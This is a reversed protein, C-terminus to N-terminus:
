ALRAPPPRQYLEPNHSATFSPADHIVVIQSTRIAPAVVVGPAAVAHFASGAVSTFACSSPCVSRTTGLTVTGPKAAHKKACCSHKDNKRCCAMGSSGAADRAFLPTIGPALLCVGIGLALLARQVSLVASSVANV